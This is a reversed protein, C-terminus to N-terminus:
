RRADLLMREYDPLDATGTDDTRSWRLLLAAVAILLTGESIALAIGGGLQQDALLDRVWPLALASYMNGGAM